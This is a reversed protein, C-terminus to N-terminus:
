HTDAQSEGQPAFITPIAPRNVCTGGCPILKGAAGRLKKRAMLVLSKSVPIESKM